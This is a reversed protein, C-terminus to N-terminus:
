KTRFFEIRRNRARGDPTTNDAIPFAPGFGKARLRGAEIGRMILWERVAVARRQSLRMNVALSGVNDTFGRIEVHIEPHERLTRLARLLVDVSSPSITTKGAEFVIGELVIAKGVEIPTAPKPVDDAANLPNTNNRIEQGDSVTGGDTDSRQPHTKYINIEEADSLGDNDSDGRLPDVHYTIVEEADTLSDRDTDVKLPDTNYRAIEDGDSLGDGDTDHNTPLTKFITIEDGDRVGDGDSDPNKPDSRFINVEEGDGLGDGDSDARSADLGLVREEANTLGDGDEDESDSAGFYLVLGTKGTAYFDVLGGSGEGRWFDTNDDMIRVGFDVIVGVHRSFMVEAGFGLPIHLTTTKRDDPYPIGASVKRKYQYAGVGAYIYPAFRGGSSFHYWGVIDASLGKTEIYDFQLPTGPFLEFQNAQLANYSGVIGLSFTRTFAHRASIEVAGALRRRDFDNFWVNGGGRVSLSWRGDRHFMWLRPSRTPQAEGLRAILGLLIVCIHLRTM